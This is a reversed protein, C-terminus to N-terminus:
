QPNVNDPRYYSVAPEEDKFLYPESFYLEIEAQRRYRLGKSIRGKVYVWKMFESIILPDTPDNNVRRLLGSREFAATGVNYSFSVLANYQSQTLSKDVVDHVVWEYERLVRRLHFDAEAKTLCKDRMTVPSGDFYYTLGYGITPKGGQDRYPCSAFAEHKRIFEIGQENVKLPLFFTLVVGIVVTL